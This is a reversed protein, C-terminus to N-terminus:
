QHEYAGAAKFDGAKVISLQAVNVHRRFAANVEDAALADLKRDMQTDWDLTRDYEERGAILGLLAGDQSRGVVRQDHLAKKAAAVEEASFGGSLTKSLEDVFSAEVKPTNKPNSIASGGFSATDGAAPASFRSNVGYSLGEKNRIRNPARGTISGGFMYNALLMAPYDPDTDAMAFELSADFTANQKDPTEIKLNVAESKQYNSTIRAYPTPLPWAGILDAAAKRVEAQDFQGVVVVEGHSAGYFKRHFQKVDDLTVRNLDEIQEDISSVYRVDGRPYHNMSRALALAALAAPDTRRNEIAAIRQKKV